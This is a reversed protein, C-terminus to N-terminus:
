VAGGEAKAITAKSAHLFPDSAEMVDVPDCTGGHQLIRDRGTELLNVYARNMAKLQDLLAPAVAVFRQLSAVHSRLDEIERDRSAILDVLAGALSKHDDRQLFYGDHREVMSGPYAPEFSKIQTSM